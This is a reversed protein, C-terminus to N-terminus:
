RYFTVSLSVSQSCPSVHPSLPYAFHSSLSAFHPLAVVFLCSSFVLLFLIVVSLCLVVLFNAGCGVHLCIIYLTVCFSLLSM